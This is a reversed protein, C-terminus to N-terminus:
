RSMSSIAALMERGWSTSPRCKKEGALMMFSSSTTRPALVAGSTSSVAMCSDFRILFTATTAPTQWPKMPLRMSIGRWTSAVLSSRSPAVGSCISLTWTSNPIGIPGNWIAVERADVDAPVAVRAPDLVDAVREARDVAPALLLAGAEVIVVVLAARARRRHDLLDDLVEGAL